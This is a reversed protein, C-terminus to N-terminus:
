GVVGPIVGKRGNTNGDLSITGSNVVMFAGFILASTNVIQSAMPATNTIVLPVDSTSDFVMLGILKANADGIAPLAIGGTGLTASEPLFNSPSRFPM